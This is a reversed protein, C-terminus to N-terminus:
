RRAAEDREPPVAPQFEDEVRQARYGFFGLVVELGSVLLVCIGTWILLVVFDYVYEV